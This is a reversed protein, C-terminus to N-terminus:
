GDKGSKGASDARVRYRWLEAGDAGFGVYVAGDRFPEAGRPLRGGFVRVGQGPFGGATSVSVREGGIRLEVRATEEDTYGYWLGPVAQGAGGWVRVPARIEKALQRLDAGLTLHPHTDAMGVTADGRRVAVCGSGTLHVTVDDVLPLGSGRPAPDDHCARGPPRELRQLTRGREDAFAFAAIKVAGPYRVVWVPAQVGERRLVAGPLSRGDETVATVATVADAAVGYLTLDAGSSFGGGTGGVLAAFREPGLPALVNCWHARGQGRGAPLACLRSGRGGPAASFWVHSLGTGGPVTLVEGAPPDRRLAQELLPGAGEAFTAVTTGDGDGDGGGVLGTGLVLALSAAVAPVALLAVRRLRAGRRRERVGLWAGSAATFTQARAELAARLRDELENM